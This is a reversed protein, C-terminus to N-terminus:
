EHSPVVVIRGGSTFSLLKQVQSQSVSVSVALDSGFNSGRRDISRIYINRAIEEPEFLQEGRGDLVWFLTVLDGAQASEPIDVSRISLPVFVALEDSPNESVGSRAIVEGPAFFRKTYRSLPSEEEGFYQAASSKLSMQRLELADSTLATGPILAQRAVWYRDGQQSAFSFGISISVSSILLLAAVILRSNKRSSQLKQERM